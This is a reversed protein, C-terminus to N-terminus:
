PNVIEVADERDCEVLHIFAKEDDALAISRGVYDPVIPLERGQANYLLCAFRVSRPRGMDMIAKLAALATRGSNVTDDVLIVHRGALGFPIDSGNLIPFDALETLDDRYLSIDLTGSPLPKGTRAAILANLREAIFVGRRKIGIVVSEDYRTLDGLVSGAIREIAAAIAEKDLLIAMGFGM